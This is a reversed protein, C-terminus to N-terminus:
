DVLAVQGHGPTGVEVRQVTLEAPGAMTPLVVHQPVLVGNAGVSRFSIEIGTSRALNATEESNRYGGIPIYKVRCVTAMGQQGPLPEQRRYALQLDFRQKGDFISVKRACPSVGDDRTLALIASLPDLVGKLDQEKVPVVDPAAPQYPMVSVSEVNGDDFGVRVSGSRMTSTFEFTFGSPRPGTGMLTGASNSIGKWQFAGLLLSLEVESKLAYAKGAHEATYRLSGVDFGNLTIKYLAAIEPANVQPEAAAPGAPALPAAGLTVLCAALAGAHVWRFEFKM